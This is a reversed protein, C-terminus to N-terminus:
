GGGSPCWRGAGGWIRNRDSSGGPTGNDNKVRQRRWACLCPLLGRRCRWGRLWGDGGFGVRFSPWGRILGEEANDQCACDVILISIALIRRGGFAGIRAGFAAELARHEQVNAKSSDPTHLDESRQLGGRPTPLKGALRCEVSHYRWAYGAEPGQQLM